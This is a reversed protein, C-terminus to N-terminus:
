FKTFFKGRNVQHDNAFDIWKVAAILLPTKAMYGVHSSYTTATKFGEHAVNLEYESKKIFKVNFREMLEHYGESSLKEDDLMRQWLENKDTYELRDLTRNNPYLILVCLYPIVFM